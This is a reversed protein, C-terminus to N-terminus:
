YPVSEMRSVLGSFGWVLWGVKVLCHDGAGDAGAAAPERGAKADSADDAVLSRCGSLDGEGAGSDLTEAGVVLAYVNGLAAVEGSVVVGVVAVVHAEEEVDDVLASRVPNVQRDISTEVTERRDSAAQSVRVVADVQHKTTLRTVVTNAEIEVSLGLTRDLHIVVLVISKNDRSSSPIYTLNLGASNTDYKAPSCTRCCVLGSAVVYVHDFRHPRDVTSYM